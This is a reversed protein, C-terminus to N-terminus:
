CSHIFCAKEFFYFAVYNLMVKLVHTNIYSLMRMGLDCVQVYKALLLKMYCSKISDAIVSVM